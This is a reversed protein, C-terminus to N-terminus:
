IARRSSVGAQHVKGQLRRGVVAEAVRGAEVLLELDIGTEIGMGHLMYVLDETALNGAAGTSANRARGAAQAARLRSRAVGAVSASM